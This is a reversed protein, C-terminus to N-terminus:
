HYALTVEPEFSLTAAISLLPPRFLLTMILRKLGANASKSRRSGGQYRRSDLAKGLHMVM